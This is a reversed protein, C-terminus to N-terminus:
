GLNPKLCPFLKRDSDAFDLKEIEGFSAWRWESHENLVFDTSDFYIRYANLSYTKGRHEFSAAGLHPGTRVTVGLEELYERVLAEADSENEEVKGGPFEWKGSLDGKPFRRAIFIRRGTGAPGDLAIGAVSRPGTEADESGPSIASLAM